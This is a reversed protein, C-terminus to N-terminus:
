QILAANVDFVQSLSPTEIAPCVVPQMANQPIKVWIDNVSMQVHKAIGQWGQQKELGCPHHVCDM